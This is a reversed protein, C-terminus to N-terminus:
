VGNHGDFIIGYVIPFHWGLAATKPDWQVRSYKPSLITEMPALALPILSLVLMKLDEEFGRQLRTQKKLLM